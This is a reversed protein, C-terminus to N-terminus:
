IRGLGEPGDFGPAPLKRERLLEETERDPLKVVGNVVYRDLGASKLFGAVREKREREIRNARWGVYLSDLWKLM